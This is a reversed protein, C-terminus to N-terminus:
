DNIGYHSYGSNEKLIVTVPPAGLKLPETVIVLSIEDAAVLSKEALLLQASFIVRPAMAHM